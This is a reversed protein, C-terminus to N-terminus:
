HNIIIGIGNVGAAFRVESRQLFATQNNRNINYFHAATRHNREASNKLPISIILAGLGIFAPALNPKDNGFLTYGLTFGLGFSGGVALVGSFINQNKGKNYYSFAKPNQSLIKAFQNRYILEEGVYFKYGGSNKKISLSDQKKEQAIIFVSSIVCIFLLTLKTKM